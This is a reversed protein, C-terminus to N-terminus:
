QLLNLSLLNFMSILRNNDSLMEFLPRIFHPLFPLLNISPINDLINLWSTLVQRVVPNIAKLRECFIPM